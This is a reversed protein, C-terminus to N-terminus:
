ERRLLWKLGEMSDREYKKSAELQPLLSWWCHPLGPYVDIKTEVGAERLVQEYIIGDDRIPDMGCAVVYTRPLGKFGTPHLIVAFLPSKPDPNYCEPIITLISHSHRSSTPSSFSQGEIHEYMPLNLIPAAKNQELALWHSKFKEPVSHRSFTSPASLFAGTLPPTLNNDRALLSLM